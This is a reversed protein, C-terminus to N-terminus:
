FHRGSMLELFPEIDELDAEYGQALLEEQISALTTQAPSTLAPMQYPRPDEGFYVQVAGQPINELRAFGNSDLTGEKSTGDSFMARYSGGAVPTLDPWHHNLEVFNTINEAKPLVPLALASASPGALEKMSAKFEIKGPGHLMINGGELKLYAGQATMLVHAKAAISIDKTVSAFTVQKDAIFQTPGAQSQMSVKGCAAHLRIGTEQNPKGPDTATGYTFLSVGSKVIYSLSSQTVLNIDQGASISTTSGASFVASAPTLAAIGARASLQMIPESFASVSGTGGQGQSDRTTMSVTAALVAATQGMAKIAHIEAPVPENVGHESKLKADHKQALEALKAQLEMGSNVQELAERTDLQMAADAVRADTSLLMGSGARVAVAQDTKLEAGFGLSGLLQNDMQHRLQGLNLEDSVGSMGAHRQLSLRSRGASDDFVLQNYAGAGTQTTALSQTKIGSLAAPHAHSGSEGAFWAPANGTASGAGAAVQNHQADRNGRGNYVSGIVVPRDIDGDIFDVVVEQGIRPVGVGGWNAGAMPAIPSVVRVWTGARDDGPAGTHSEDAHHRLRSHSQAGRAWHFQLKIRHDRDTHVMAGEPGVVVATQQGHVTPRPFRLCGHEDFENARYPVTKRIADIRVRYLPREGAQSGVAHLSKCEESVMHKELVSAELLEDCAARLEARLNNHMLHLVRVIAFSRGEDDTVEGFAPHGHLTFTTGPALTRVTGAGVHLEKKMAIAQMRNEARRKGQQLSQYAYAGHTERTTLLSNRNHSDAATAVRSGLARYDWSSVEVAGALQRHETRWRDLSDEKIVASSQTFRIFAQSNPKFAGNHDAIVMTHRGLSPSTADGIHEFFFFLGEEIMLRQCFAADSEQYQTTLSRLPYVARDAIDFRWDPQLRGKGQYSGLIADLIDFVTMDQFVRSDRGINLFAFWPEVSLEYRALGGNAGTIEAATVYGHFPRLDERSTATLLELLVPQAILSRLPIKSDTSLVSLQFRFGLNLGEEGRVHEAILRNPGLPTFFRLLRSDQTFSDAFTRLDKYVSM